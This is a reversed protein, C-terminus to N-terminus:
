TFAPFFPNQVIVSFFLFYTPIVTCICFHTGWHLIAQGSSPALQKPFLHLTLAGYTPKQILSIYPPCDASPFVSPPHFHITLSVAPTCNFYFWSSTVQSDMPYALMILLLLIHSPERHHTLSDPSGDRFPSFLM